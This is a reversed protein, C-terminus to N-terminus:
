LSSHRILSISLSTGLELTDIILVSLSIGFATKYLHFLVNQSSAIKMGVPNCEAYTNNCVDGDFHSLHIALYLSVQNGVM